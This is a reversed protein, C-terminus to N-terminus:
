PYAVAFESEGMRLEIYESPDDVQYLHCSFRAGLQIAKQGDIDTWDPGVSLIDFSSEATQGFDSDTSYKRGEKDIWEIYVSGTYPDSLVPEVEIYSACSPGSESFINKIDCCVTGDAQILVMKVEYIGTHEYTHSPSYDTEHVHGDGFNWYISQFNQVVDVPEAKFGLSNEGQFEHSFGIQCHHFFDGTRVQHRSIDICGNADKIQVAIEFLDSTEYSHVPSAETSTNGDGFDWKYSFPPTGNSHTTFSFTFSDTEFVEGRYPLNEVVFTAQPDISSGIDSVQKDRIVIQFAERCDVCNALRFRAMYEKVGFSDVRYDADLYYDDIGAKLILPEGDLEAEISFVPEAPIPEPFEKRCAMLNVILFFLSFYTSFKM